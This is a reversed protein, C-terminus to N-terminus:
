NSQSYREYWHSFGQCSVAIEAQDIHAILHLLDNLGRSKVSYEASLTCDASCAGCSQQPANSQDIYGPATIYPSSKLVTTRGIIEAGGKLDKYIYILYYSPRALPAVAKVKCLICYNTGAVCQRALVAVPTYAVGDINSTAKDLADIADPNNEPSTSGKVAEWGGSVKDSASHYGSSGINDEASAAVAPMCGAICLAATLGALTRKM